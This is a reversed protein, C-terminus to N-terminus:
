RKDTWWSFLMQIRYNLSCVSCIILIMKSKLILILKKKHPDLVNQQNRQLLNMRINFPNKLHVRLLWLKVKCNVKFLHFIKNLKKFVTLKRKYLTWRRLVLCHFNHFTKIELDTQVLVIVFRNIIMLIFVRLSNKVTEVQDRIFDIQNLM